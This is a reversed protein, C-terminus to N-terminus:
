SAARARVAEGLAMTTLARARAADRSAGVTARNYRALRLRHRRPASTPLAGQLAGGRRPQLPGGDRERRALLIEELDASGLPPRTVMQPQPEVLSTSRTRVLERTPVRPDFDLCLSLRSRAALNCASHVNTADLFWVEGIRMHFVDASESHLCAEHTQLPVHLRTYGKKMTVFDRHPLLVGEEMHFIRAWRLHSADFHTRIIANVLPLRAADATPRANGTYERIIGDDANGTGNWLICNSWRGFVYDAYGVEFRCGEIAKTERALDRADLALSGLIKSLM